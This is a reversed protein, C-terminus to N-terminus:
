VGLNKREEEKKDIAKILRNLGEKLEIAIKIDRKTNHSSKLCEDVLDKTYIITSRLLAKNKLDTKNKLHKYAKKIYNEVSFAILSNM